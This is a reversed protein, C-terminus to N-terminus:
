DHGYEDVALGAQEDLADGALLPRKVGLLCGGVAGLDNATDGRALASGRV